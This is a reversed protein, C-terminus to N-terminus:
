SSTGLLLAMSNVKDTLAQLQNTKLAHDDLNIQANMLGVYQKTAVSTPNKLANEYVIDLLTQLQDATKETDIVSKIESIQEVRQIIMDTTLRPM